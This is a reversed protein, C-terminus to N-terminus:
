VERAPPKPLERWHTPQKSPTGTYADWRGFPLDYFAEMVYQLKNKGGRGIIVRTGDRPAEEIPRWGDAAQKVPENTQICQRDFEQLIALAYTQFRSSEIIAEGDDFEIFNEAVAHLKKIVESWDREQAEPEPIIEDMLDYPDESSNWVNGSPTFLEWHRDKFTIKHPYDYDESEEISKVRVGNRAVYLHAKAPDIPLTIPKLNQTM